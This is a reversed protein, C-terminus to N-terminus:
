DVVRWRFVSPASVNGAGDTATLTFKHKRVKLKRYKRPSSCPKVAKKDLKCRFTAAPDDSSFKFTATSLGAAECAEARTHFTQWWIM